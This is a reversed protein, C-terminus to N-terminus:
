TLYYIAWTRTRVMFTMRKTTEPKKQIFVRGGDELDEWHGSPSKFPRLTRVIGEKKSEILQTM